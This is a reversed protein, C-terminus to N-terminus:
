RDTVVGVKQKSKEVDRQKQWQVFREGKKEGGREGRREGGGGEECDRKQKGQREEEKGDRQVGRWEVM